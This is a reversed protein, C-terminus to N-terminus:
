AIRTLASLGRMVDAWRPLQELFHDLTALDVSRAPLGAGSRALLVALLGAAAAAVLGVSISRRLEGRRARPEALRALVAASVRELEEARPASFVRILSLLREHEARERRCEACAELHGRDLAAELPALGGDLAIALRARVRACGLPTSENM